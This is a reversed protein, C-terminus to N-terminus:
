SLLNQIMSGPANYERKMKVVTLESSRQSPNEM